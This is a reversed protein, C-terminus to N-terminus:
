CFKQHKFFDVPFNGRSKKGVCSPTGCPTKLISDPGVIKALGFDAIKVVLEGKSDKNHGILLNEPKLDRHVIGKEKGILRKYKRIQVHLYRIANVIQFIIQAADSESFFGRKEVEDLLEGGTVSDFSFFLFWRKCSWLCFYIPKHSPWKTSLCSTEM